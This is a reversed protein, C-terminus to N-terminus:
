SRKRPPNFFPIESVICPATQRSWEVTQEIFLETGLQAYDSEITALAVNKKPMPAWVGSTARGVQRGECYVPVVCRWAAVPAHPPLGHANYLAEIACWDIDLGVFSWRSGARKERELAAQGIFPERNQLKVTWDLGLEFPTLKQADIHADNAGTYDVGRLVFGAEIRSIDMADLGVAEIGYNKGTSMLDDWLPIAHANPVWVEYGLDGTYGTRSVWGRYGDFTAETIGFFRLADMDADCVQRLLERSTPGQLALAALEGTRDVVEVQYPDAHRMLWWYAPAASTVRFTEDDLRACTGDDLVFGDDDCWCLYTMRGPKLKGVDRVMIRALFAAADPGRVDYKFLPTVDIVASGQRIANYERDPSLGYTCVAHYGAWDKWRYTLCREKTREHFPTGIPM